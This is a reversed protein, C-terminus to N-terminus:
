GGQTAYAVKLETLRVVGEGFAFLPILGEILICANKKIKKECDGEFIGNRRILRVSAIVLAGIM